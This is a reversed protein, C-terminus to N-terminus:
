AILTILGSGYVGTPAGVAVAHNADCCAVAHYETGPTDVQVSIWRAPAGYDVNRYLVGAGGAAGVMYVVGCGCASLDNIVTTAPVSGDAVWTTGGNTTVYLGGTTGYGILVIQETLPLLAYVNDAAKGVPLTLADWTAGSNTSKKASNGDGVAYVVDDNAFKIRRINGYTVVGEEVPTATVGGDESIWIYGNQGGIMVTNFSHVEVVLPHNASFTPVATDDVLAWTTGGDWSYAYGPEGAAVAVIFDGMGAIDSLGTATTFATITHVTWTRGGDTSLAYAPPNGPADAIATGILTCDEVPGCEDACKSAKLVSVHDIYYLDFGVENVRTGTVRYIMVPFELTSISATIITEGEEDPSYASEDDTALSTVDVCCLRKIMAWNLPDDVRGCDQTRIDVDFPCSVLDDYLRNRITEKMMLSSTTPGPASRYSQDVEFKGVATSKCYTVNKDGRPSDVGGVRSCRGLWAFSDLTDCKRIYTSKKGRLTTLTVSM